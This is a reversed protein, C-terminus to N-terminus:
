QADLLVLASDPDGIALAAAVVANAAAEAKYADKFAWMAMLRAVPYAGYQIVDKWIRSTTGFYLHRTM